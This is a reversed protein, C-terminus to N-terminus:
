EPKTCNVLGARVKHVDLRYSRSINALRITSSHKSSGLPSVGTVGAMAARKGLRDFHDM